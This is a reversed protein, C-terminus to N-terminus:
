EIVCYCCDICFIGFFYYYLVKPGISGDSSIKDALVANMAGTSTSPKFEESTEEMRKVEGCTSETNISSVKQVFQPQLCAEDATSASPVGVPEIESKSFWGYRLFSFM